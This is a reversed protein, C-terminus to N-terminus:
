GGLFQQNIEQRNCLYVKKDMVFDTKKISDIRQASYGDLSAIIKKPIEEQTSYYKTQIQSAGIEKKWNTLLPDEDPLSDGEKLLILREVDGGGAKKKNATEYEWYTFSKGSSKGDKNAISGYKDGLILVYIDCKEVDSICTLLVNDDKALYKEMANVDYLHSRSKIEHLFEDRIDKFEMYPSSLYVNLGM